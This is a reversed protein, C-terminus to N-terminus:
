VEVGYLHVGSMYLWNDDNADHAGDDSISVNSALPWRRADVGGVVRRREASSVNQLLAGAMWNRTTFVGEFPQERGRPPQRDANEVLFAM